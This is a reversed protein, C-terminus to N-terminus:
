FNSGNMELEMAAVFERDAILIKKSLDFIKIADKILEKRDEQSSHGGKKNLQHWYFPITVNKYVVCLTLLHM